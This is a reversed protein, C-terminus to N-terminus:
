SSYWRRPYSATYDTSNLGVNRLFVDGGDEPNFFYFVGHSQDALSSHRDLSRRKNAFYHWSKRICTNRPWRLPDGRDCDRNEQGSGSSNRGLLEEITRM